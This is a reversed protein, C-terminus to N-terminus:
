ALGLEGTRGDSTGTLDKELEDSIGERSHRIKEDDTARKSGPDALASHPRM